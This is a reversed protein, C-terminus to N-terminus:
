TRRGGAIEGRSIVAHLLEGGGNLEENSGTKISAQGRRYIAGVRRETEGRGIGSSLGWAAWFGGDSGAEIAV